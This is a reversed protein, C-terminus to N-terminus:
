KPVEEVSSARDLAAKLRDICDAGRSAYIHIVNSFRDCDDKPNETYPFQIALWRLSKAEPIDSM